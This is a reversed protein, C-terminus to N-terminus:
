HKNIVKSEIHPPLRHLFEIEEESTESLSRSSLSSSSMPPSPISSPDYHIYPAVFQDTSTQAQTFQCSPIEQKMSTNIVPCPYYRGTSSDIYEETHHM